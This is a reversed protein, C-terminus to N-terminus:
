ESLNKTIQGQLLLYDIITCTEAPSRIAENAVSVCLPFVPVMLKQAYLRRTYLFRESGTFHQSRWAGVIGVDEGEQDNKGLGSIVFRHALAKNGPAPCDAM